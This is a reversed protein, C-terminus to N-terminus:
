SSQMYYTGSTDPQIPLLVARTHTHTMHMVSDKHTAHVCMETGPVLVLIHMGYICIKRHAQFKALICISFFM